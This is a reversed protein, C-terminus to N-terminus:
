SSEAHLHDRTIRNEEDVFIFTPRYAALEAEDYQAYSIVIVKDGPHALRAAAGNLCIEGSGPAGSIAYTEFRAGNNINVVHVQEFERLDAAELLEPDITISGIYNLDAATVTARHIKSKCMTRLM